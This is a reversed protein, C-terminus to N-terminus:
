LTAKCPPPSTSPSMPTVIPFWFPFQKMLAILDLLAQPNGDATITGDKLAAAAFKVDGSLLVVNFDETKKAWLTVDPHDVWTARSNVVNNKLVLSRAEDIWSVEQGGPEQAVGSAKTAGSETTATPKSKTASEEQGKTLKFNIKIVKGDAADSDIAIGVYACTLALTINPALYAANTVDVCNDPVGHRLEKAGVFYFNRWTAAEAQYGLQEFADAQLNRAEQNDPEAYVVHELLQAVWRYEGKDYAEQAKQIVTKAGGMLAVYRPAADPPPLPDLDAPNGGFYGLYFNYVARANHSVTGYYSRTAWNEALAKPLKVMDGIQPLSYGSNAFHLSRDHIYKFADRYNEIHEVIAGKGSIPWHHPAYLVEAKGGWLDLTQNLYKVWKSIDRTKAGRLTYFNHLTHVANEATCLWGKAPNFFHMESPAESGPALLFEFVVGDIEKTQGTYTVWDDDSQPTFLTPSQSGGLVGLGSGLTQAAGPGIPQVVASLPPPVGLGTGYMYTARRYMANGAYLNESVAEDTFGQPAIIRVDRDQVAKPTTVGGVGGYHDVHSHTFIVAKVSRKRDKDVHQWYLELAAAAAIATTTCDIIILGDNNKGSEMITMSAIDINRVQYLGDAVKFLGSRGNLKCIRWLSPNMTDPTPEEPPIAFPKANFFVKGDHMIKDGPLPAIFGEYADKFDTRNDYPLALYKANEAKTYATPPKPQNGGAAAAGAARASVLDFPVSGFAGGLATLASGALFRRREM